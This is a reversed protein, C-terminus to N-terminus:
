HCQTGEAGSRARAMHVDHRQHLLEDHRSQSASDSCHAPTGRWTAGDPLQNAPHLHWPQGHPPQCAEGGPNPRWGAPVVSM